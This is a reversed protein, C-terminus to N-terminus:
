VVGAYFVSYVWWPEVSVKYLMCYLFQTSVQQIDTKVPCYVVNSYVV